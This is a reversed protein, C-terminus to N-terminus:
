HMIQERCSFGDTIILTDKAAERVRPLLVREGIKMSIDYQSEEFGFSGALGCCGSDLLEADLGMRSLLQQENKMGVLAKQHCHGHLIANRALVPPHYYTRNLFESLTVTNQRLRQADQDAPFLNTLEDRFVSACSPELVVVPTGAEIDPALASLIQQLQTKAQDLFGYDFLPRGCCLVPEPVQVRYGASELVEVTAKATHPFFHNNFTDAWLIVSPRGDSRERRRQPRRKFWTRFTERAFAPLKRKQMIGGVAKAISALGPTQTIHRHREVLNSM